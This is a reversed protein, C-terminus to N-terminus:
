HVSVPELENQRATAFALERSRVVALLSGNAAHIGFGRGAETEVPGVYALHPAGMMAFAEPSLNGPAASSSQDNNQV